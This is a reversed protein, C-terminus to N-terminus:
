KKKGFIHAFFDTQNYLQCYRIRNRVEAKIQEVYGDPIVANPDYPTFKKGIYTGLDTKWDYNMNYVLPAKESFIDRGVFLRSDFETGFLNSLTPLIDLSFVPTDIVFPEEKELCGSWMILANHDRQMLNKVNYGYLESVYPLKASDDDLGYPFHDASLVIVTDDAIGKEELTRVLYALADELELNAAIYSKVPDSYPLGQVRDWNKKTMANSKVSYNNHGSVSMYYINFPAQDIYMPVTGEMMELDSEPWVKTVYKEMGNGYGMFGNSYGLNVHTKNRSYFTYSNNHFAWGNYGLRNLQSGMTMYNNRTAMNKFSKGGSTPMAGFIIQYEGGTTGASAPQIYDNFVFGKTSLRYLTPTLEPSIVEKTFAEATIMILNKGKFLGTYKNQSTPEQTACYADLKKLKDDAKSALATFDINMMNKPWIIEPTPTPVPPATKEPIVPEFEGGEESNDHNMTDLRMATMLGFYSVASQYNYESAYAPGYTKDARVGLITLATCAAAAAISIGKVTLSSEYPPDLEDLWGLYVLFPITCLLIITIGEYSTLLEVVNSQFQGLADGAGATMTTLDYFVKFQKFVFFSILFLVPVAATILLRVRRGWKGPLLDTLVATIAGYVLSFLLSYKLWPFLSESSTYARLVAEYFFFIATMLLTRFIVPYKKRFYTM